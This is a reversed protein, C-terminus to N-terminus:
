LFPFCGVSQTPEEKRGGGCCCDHLNQDQLRRYQPVLPTGAFFTAWLDRYIKRGDPYHTQQTNYYYYSDSSSRRKPRPM